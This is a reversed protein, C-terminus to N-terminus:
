IHTEETAQEAIWDLFDDARMKKLHPPQTLEHYVLLTMYAVEWASMGEFRKKVARLHHRLFLRVIEDRLKVREASRAAGNQQGPKQLEEAHKAQHDHLHRLPCPQMRCKKGKVAYTVEM